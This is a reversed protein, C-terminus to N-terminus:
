VARRKAGLESEMLSIMELRKKKFNLGLVKVMAGLKLIELSIVRCTMIFNVKDHRLYGCGKMFAESKILSGPEAEKTELSFQRYEGFTKLKSHDFHMARLLATSGKSSLSFDDKSHAASNRIERIRELDEYLKQDILGIANSVKIISSFTGLPGTYDFLNKMKKNSLDSSSNFLDKLLDRVSNEIDSSMVLVCGRDSENLLPDKEIKQLTELSFKIKKKKM